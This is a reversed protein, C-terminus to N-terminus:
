IGFQFAEPRPTTFTQTKQIAVPSFQAVLTIASFSKPKAVAPVGSEDDVETLLPM